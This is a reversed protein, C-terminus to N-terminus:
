TPCCTITTERVDAFAEPGNSCAARYGSPCIGPSYYVSETPVFDDPYCDDTEVPGLMEYNRIGSSTSVEGDSLTVVESDREMIRYYGQTCTSPPTFTTTLPGLNSMNAAARLALVETSSFDPFAGAAVASAPHVPSSPFSSSSLIWPPFRPTLLKYPGFSWASPEAPEGQM